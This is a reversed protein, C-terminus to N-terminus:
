KHWMEIHPIGADMFVDGTAVFGLHEYFRKRSTQAHLYVSNEPSLQKCFDMIFRMLERGLGQERYASLIAVRGVHFVSKGHHSEILLRACGALAGDDMRILFHIADDDKGDWEDALPVNQEQIFVIDRLQRLADRQDLWSVNSISYNM